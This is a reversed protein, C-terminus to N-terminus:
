YEEPSKESLAWTWTDLAREKSVPKQGNRTYCRYVWSSGKESIKILGLNPHNYWGEKFQGDM